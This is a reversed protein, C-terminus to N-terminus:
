RFRWEKNPVIRVPQRRQQWHAFRVTHRALWTGIGTLKEHAAGACCLKATSLLCRWARSTGPRAVPGSTGVQPKPSPARPRHRRQLERGNGLWCRLSAAIPAPGATARTHWFSPVTPRGRGSGKRRTGRSGPLLRVSRSQAEPLVCDGSYVDPLSVSSYQEAIEQAAARADFAAVITDLSV